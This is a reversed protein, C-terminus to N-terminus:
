IARDGTTPTRRTLPIIFGQLSPAFLAECALLRRPFVTMGAENRFLDYLYLTIEHIMLLMMFFATFNSARVMVFGLRGANGRYLYAFRDAILLFMAALELLTLIRRRKPSLVRTMCSLLALIACMGSMFLMINLQHAKLFEAM